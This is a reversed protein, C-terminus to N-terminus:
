MRVFITHPDNGAEAPESTSQSLDPASSQVAPLTETNKSSLDNSEAQSAASEITSTMPLKMAIPLAPRLGPEMSSDSNPSAPAPPAAPRLPAAPESPTAAPPVAPATTSPLAPIPPPTESPATSKPASEPAAPAEQNQNESPTEESQIIQQKLTNIADSYSPKSITLRLGGYLRFDFGSLGATKHSSWNYIPEARVFALLSPFRKLIPHNIELDAIMSANGQRPISTKFPPNRWNNVLTDNAVFTWYGHRYVYGVTYFPDLERNPPLFPYAGRMQLLLSGYVINNPTLVRTLTIGPLYDFQQLFKAQWLERVQFDGQFSTKRGLQKTYRLGFSLSQTVPKSLITHDAYTDKILFYNSYVSINKFINYGVTINPMVRFVYDSRPNSYTQFVNTELRQSVETTSNFWFKEPLAQFIRFKYGPSFGNREPAVTFPTTDTPIFQPTPNEQPAAQATLTIPTLASQARAPLLSTSFIAALLFARSVRRLSHSEFLAQSQLFKIERVGV